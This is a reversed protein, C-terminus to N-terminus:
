AEQGDRRIEAFPINKLETYIKSIDYLHIKGKGTSVHYLIILEHGQLEDPYVKLDKLKKMASQYVTYNIVIDGVRVPIAKSSYREKVRELAELRIDFGAPYDNEARKEEKAAKKEAVKWSKIQKKIDKIEDSKWKALQKMEAKVKEISGEIITIL